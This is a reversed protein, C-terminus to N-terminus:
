VDAGRGVGWEGSWDPSLVILSTTHDTSPPLDCRVTRSAGPPVAGRLRSSTISRMTAMPQRRASETKWSARWGAWDTQVVPEPSAPKMQVRRAIALTRHPHRGTSTAENGWPGSFHQVAIVRGDTDRTTKTWGVLQTAPHCTQQVKLFAVAVFDDVTAKEPM